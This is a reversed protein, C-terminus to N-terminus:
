GNKRHIVRIALCSLDEQSLHAYSPDVKMSTIDVYDFESHVLELGADGFLAMWEPRQVRNFYQVQNEFVRKWTSDSYKLYYKHCVSPDYYTLHDRMDIQHISYGGPKLVRYFDAILHPLIARDVHELVDWSVILSCHKDQIQRLTGTSDIIYTMGLINYVEEFRQAQTLKSLLSRARELREACLTFESDLRSMLQEVYYRFASLQRNDWVDFATPQADFFLRLILSEWHVWGTGIELTKQGKKPIGYKDCFEIMYKARQLYRPELGRRIRSRAGVTNGLARYARRSISTASLLKLASAASIYRLM